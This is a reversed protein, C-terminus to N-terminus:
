SINPNQANGMVDETHPLDYCLRSQIIMRMIVGSFKWYYAKVCINQFTSIKGGAFLMKIEQRVLSM